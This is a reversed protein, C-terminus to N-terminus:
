NKSCSLYLVNNKVHLRLPSRKKFMAISVDVNKGPRNTFYAVIEMHVFDFLSEVDAMKTGCALLQAGTLELSWDSSRFSSPPILTRM